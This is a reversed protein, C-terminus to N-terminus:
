NSDMRYHAMEITPQLPAAHKLFHDAGHFIYGLLLVPWHPDPEIGMYRRIRPKQMTKLLRPYIMCLLDLDALPLNDGECLSVDAQRMAESVYGACSFRHYKPSGNEAEEVSPQVSPLITYRRDDTPGEETAIRSAWRAIKALQREDLELSVALDPELLKDEDDFSEDNPDSVLPPGMHYVQVENPLEADGDLLAVHSVFEQEIESYEGVISFDSFVAKESPQSLIVTSGPMDKNSRRRLWDTWESIFEKLRKFM